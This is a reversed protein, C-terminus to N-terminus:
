LLAVVLYTIVQLSFSARLMRYAKGMQSKVTNVSLGLEDAVESYSFGDVCVLLFIKKCQPPLEEIASRLKANEFSMDEIELEAAEAGINIASELTSFRQNNRIANISMNYVSRYSYSRFSTSIWLEERKMWYKVFFDQVIEEAAVRNRVVRYALLSLGEFHKNFLAEYSLKDGNRVKEVLLLEQDSKEM